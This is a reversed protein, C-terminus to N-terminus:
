IYIYTQYICMQKNITERVLLIYAGHPLFNETKKMTEVWAGLLTGPVDYSNLLYRNFLLIFSHNIGGGCVSM